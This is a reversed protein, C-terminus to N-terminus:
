RTPSHATTPWSPSTTSTPRPTPTAPGPKCCSPATRGLAAFLANQIDAAGASSALTGNSNATSSSDLANQLTTNFTGLIDAQGVDKLSNTGTTVAVPLPQNYVKDNLLTQLNNLQTELQDGLVFNGGSMIGSLSAATDTYTDSGTGALFTVPLNLAGNGEDVKLTDTGDGAQLRIGTLADTGSLDYTQSQATGNLVIELQNYGANTTDSSQRHVAVTTTDSASDSLVISLVNNAVTPLVTANFLTRDELSELQLRWRRGTQLPDQNGAVLYGAAAFCGIAAGVQIVGIGSALGALAPALREELKEIQFARSVKEIRFRAAKAASM